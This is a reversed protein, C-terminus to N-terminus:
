RHSWENAFSYYGLGFMLNMKTDDPYALQCIRIVEDDTQRDMLSQTVSSYCTVCTNRQVNKNFIFFDM